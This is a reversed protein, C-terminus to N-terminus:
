QLVNSQLNTPFVTIIHQTASSRLSSHVNPDTSLRNSINGSPAGPHSLRNITQTGSLDHDWLKHTRAERRARHQCSPAQLRSPIRHRGRERGRGQECETLRERSFYIFMSFNLVFLVFATYIKTTYTNIFNNINAKQWKLLSTLFKGKILKLKRM